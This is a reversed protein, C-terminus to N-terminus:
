DFLKYTLNERLTINCDNFVDIIKDMIRWLKILLLSFTVQFETDRDVNLKRVLENNQLLIVLESIGTSPSGLIGFM